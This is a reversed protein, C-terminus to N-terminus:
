PNLCTAFANVEAKYDPQASNNAIHLINQDRALNPFETCLRATADFTITLGMSAGPAVTASTTGSLSLTGCTIIVDNTVHADTVILDVDGSNTVTIAQTASCGIPENIQIPNPSINVVPQCLDCPPEIGVGQVPISLEGASGGVDLTLDVTGSYGREENPEFTLTLTRSEDPTVVQPLTIDGGGQYSFEGTSGNIQQILINDSHSNTITVDVSGARNTPVDGFDVSTPSPVLDGAPPDTDTDTDGTDVIAGEGAGTVELVYPEELSNVDLVLDSAYTDAATPTFGVEVVVEGGKELQIPLTTTSIVEFAVHGDLSAQRIIIADDGTNTLVVSDAAQADLPQVGFALVAPEIRLDGLQVVDSQGSDQGAKGSDSLKPLPDLGCGTSLAAFAALLLTAQHRM